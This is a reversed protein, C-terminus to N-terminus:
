INLDTLNDFNINICHLKEIVSDLAVYIKGGTVNKKKSVSNMGISKDTCFRCFRNKLNSIPNNSVKGACFANQNSWTIAIFFSCYLRCGLFIKTCIEM